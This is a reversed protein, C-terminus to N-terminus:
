KPVGQLIGLLKKACSKIEDETYQASRSVVDNWAVNLKFIKAALYISSAAINSQSFKLLNYEVLALEQLYRAMM